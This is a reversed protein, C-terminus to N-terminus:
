FSAQTRVSDYSVTYAPKFRVKANVQLSLSLGPVYSRVSFILTNEQQCCHNEYCYDHYQNKTVLYMYPVYYSGLTVALCRGLMTIPFLSAGTLIMM